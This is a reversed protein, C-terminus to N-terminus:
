SGHQKAKKERFIWYLNRFYVLLGVSQGVIFVPDRRYLSYLLLISGGLVSFYWFLHPIVSQKRRETAIWQVLFRSFFFLQGAFGLLVWASSPHMM